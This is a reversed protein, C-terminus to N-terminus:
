HVCPPPCVRRRPAGSGWLAGIGKRTLLVDDHTPGRGLSRLNWVCVRRQRLGPGVLRHSTNRVFIARQVGELMSDDRNVFKDSATWHRQGDDGVSAILKSCFSAAEEVLSQRQATATGNVVVSRHDNVGIWGVACKQYLQPGPAALAASPFILVAAFATALRVRWHM